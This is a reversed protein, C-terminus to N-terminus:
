AMEDESRVVYTSALKSRINLNDWSESREPAVPTYVPRCISPDLCPRVQSSILSSSFCSHYLEPQQQLPQLYALLHSHHSLPIGRVRRQFIFDRSVFYVLSTFRPSLMAILLLICHDKLMKLARAFHFGDTKRVHSSNTLNKVFFM